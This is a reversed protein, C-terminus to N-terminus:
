QWGDLLPAVDPWVSDLTVEGLLYPRLRLLITPVDLKAPVAEANLLALDLAAATSEGVANRWATLAQADDLMPRVGHQALVRQAEVDSILTSLFDAAVAPHASKAFVAGIVASTFGGHGAPGRPFPRPTQGSRLQGLEEFMFPPLPGSRPSGMDATLMGAQVQQALWVVAQREDGFARLAPQLFQGAWQRQEPALPALAAALIDWDALTWEPPPTAVGARALVSEDFHVYHPVLMLPLGLRQGDVYMLADFVAAAAENLRPRPLAPFEATLGAPEFEWIFRDRRAIVVDAHRLSETPQEWDVEQVRIKVDPHGNQYQRTAADVAARPMARGYVAVVIEVKDPEPPQKASCGNLLLAACILSSVILLPRKIMFSRFVNIERWIGSFRWYIRM